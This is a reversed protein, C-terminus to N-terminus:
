GRYLTGCAGVFRFRFGTRCAYWESVCRIELEVVASYCLRLELQTELAMEHGTSLNIQCPDGPQGFRSSRTLFNSMESFSIKENFPLDSVITMNKSRESRYGSVWTGSQVLRKFEVNRWTWNEVRQWTWFKTLTFSTPTM